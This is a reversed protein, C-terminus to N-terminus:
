PKQKRTGFLPHRRIVFALVYGFAAGALAAPVYADAGSLVFPTGPGGLRLSFGLWISLVAIAACIAPLIWAPM